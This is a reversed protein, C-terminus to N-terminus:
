IVHLTNRKEKFSANELNLWKIHKRDGETLLIHKCLKANEVSGSGKQIQLLMHIVWTLVINTFTFYKLFPKLIESAALLQFKSIHLAVTKQCRFALVTPLCVLERIDNQTKVM